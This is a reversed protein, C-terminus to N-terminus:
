VHAVGGKQGKREYVFWAAIVGLIVLLGFLTYLNSTTVFGPPTSSLEVNLFNPMNMMHEELTGTTGSDMIPFADQLYKGEPVKYQLTIINNTGDTAMAPVLLPIKNPEKSAYDFSIEYSFDGATGQPLQVFVKDHTSGQKVESKLEQNNSKITLKNIKTSDFKTFLHELKGDKVGEAQSIVVKENVVAGEQNSAIQIVAEKLIPKVPKGEAAVAGSSLCLIVLILFGIRKM